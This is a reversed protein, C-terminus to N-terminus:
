KLQLFECDDSVVAAYNQREVFSINGIHLIASVLQLIQLQINDPIGVVQM